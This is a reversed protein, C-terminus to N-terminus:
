VLRSRRRVWRDTLAPARVEPSSSSYRRTMTQGNGTKLNLMKSYPVPKLALADGPVRKPAGNTYAGSREITQDCVRPDFDVFELGRCDLVAIPKFEQGKDTAIQYPKIQTKSDNFKDFKASSERKCSSCRWVFNATDHGTSLERDDQKNDFAKAQGSELRLFPFRVM